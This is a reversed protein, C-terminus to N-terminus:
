KDRMKRCSYVIFMVSIIKIRRKSRVQLAIGLNRGYLYAIEKLVDGEHCGGLIVASRAGKAILSATRLYTKGWYLNWADALREPGPLLGLEPTKIDGMRLFEGEVQNSIVNAILEVVENEGLRSLAWSARGLLFDGGLIAMKNGSNTSSGKEPAPIIGDHILSAIHVMEVIQALRVQTPLISPSCALRPSLSQDLTPRPPPYASRWAPQQLAFVSEFSATHDPMSPNWENLVDSRSLPEDFEESRRLKTQCTAEWDKQEWHRGSGNTARSFLLVVLSRLQKTPQLFYGEAIQALGPHATGLLDLLCKRIHTLEPTVLAYPEPRRHTPLSDDALTEHRPNPTASVHALVSLQRCRKDSVEVHRRISLSLSRSVSPRM